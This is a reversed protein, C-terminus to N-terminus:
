KTSSVVYRGAFKEGLREDDKFFGMLFNFEGEMRPIVRSCSVLDWKKWTSTKVKPWFDFNYYKRNTDYLHLFIKYDRDM